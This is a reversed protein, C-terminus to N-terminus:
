RLAVAIGAFGQVVSGGGPDEFSRVEYRFQGFAKVRSAVPVDLGAVIQAGLRPGRTNDLTYGNPAQVEYKSREWFLGPGGGAFASVRHGWRALLNAGASRFTNRSITVTQTSSGQAPGFTQREEHSAGALEGEVVFPGSGFRVAALWTPATYGLDGHLYNSLGFGGRVEIVPSEAQAFAASPLGLLLCVVVLPKM